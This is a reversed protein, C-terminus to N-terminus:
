KKKGHMIPAVKLRLGNQCIFGTAGVVRLIGVSSKDAETLVWEMTAHMPILERENVPRPM